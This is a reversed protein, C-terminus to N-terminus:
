LLDAPDLDYTWGSPLLDIAKLLQDRQKAKVILQWRYKGAVKEYFSPSPGVLSIKLDAAMLIDALQQSAKEASNSSARSVTLKMLHYFPPFGYMRRATLQQQYFTEWDQNIASLLTYNEPNYSQVVVQGAAKHGRGVRGIIQTMLQYTREEATFDPFSLSTDAQVVGVVSLLPLDLGKALVQTGVLIDIEGSAIQEYLVELREQKGTDADFRRISAKPFLSTLAEALTKTGINRFLIESSGCEPCSSIAATSYGCTHCQMTHKDAHYTLPLDCRPCGAQWGCDQCLVLRASGRRNLFVLSQEGRALADSVRNILANSLFPHRSFQEKDRLNVLTVAPAKAGTIASKELRLIPLRKQEAFYYESVPPTASGLVLTAAHIGALAAAARSTQYYPSQDQKYAPEHFEDVAIFGLKAIPSFLASRPGIIVLPQRANIIRLWADRRKAPTLTSHMVVTRGAFQAEFANILQTTLAIEPTLILASKGKELSQRALELYIRTKGSGTRGHLLFTGAPKQGIQELTVAQEETLPPLDTPKTLSVAPSEGHRPQQILSAPVFLRAIVGLPAPYYQRLWDMLKASAEPLSYPLPRSIPKTKFGPKSVERLVVAVAERQGLPVAIVQHRDLVQASSYTLVDSHFRGSAVAVEYHRM